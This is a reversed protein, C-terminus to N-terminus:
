LCWLDAYLSDGPLLYRSLPASSHVCPHYDENLFPGFPCRLYLKHLICIKTSM